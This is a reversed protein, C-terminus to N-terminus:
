KNIGVYGGVAKKLVEDLKVNDPLAKLLDLLQRVTLGHRECEEYIEKNELANIEDEVKKRQLMRKRAKETEKEEREDLKAKENYYDQLTKVKRKSKPKDAQQETKEIEAVQSINMQENTM